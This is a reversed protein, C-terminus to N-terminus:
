SYLAGAWLVRRASRFVSGVEGVKKLGARVLGLGRGAGAPGIALLEM